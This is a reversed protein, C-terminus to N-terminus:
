CLTNRRNGLSHEESSNHPTKLSSLVTGVRESSNLWGAVSGCAQAASTPTYTNRGCLKQM